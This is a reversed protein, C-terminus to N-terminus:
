KYRNITPETPTSKEMTITAVRSNSCFLRIALSVWELEEVLPPVLPPRPSSVVIGLPKLSVIESISASMSRVVEIGSGLTDFFSTPLM